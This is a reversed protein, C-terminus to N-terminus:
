GSVNAFRELELFSFFLVFVEGEVCSRDRPGAGKKKRSWGFGREAWESGILDWSM